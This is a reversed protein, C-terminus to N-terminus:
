IRYMWFAAPAGLLFNIFLIVGPFVKNLWFILLSLFPVRIQRVSRDKM